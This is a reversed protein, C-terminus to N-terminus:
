AVYGAFFGGVVTKILDGARGTRGLGASTGGSNAKGREGGPEGGGTRGWPSGKKATLFFGPPTFLRSPPSFVYSPPYM